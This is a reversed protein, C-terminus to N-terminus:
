VIASNQQQLAVLLPANGESNPENIDAGQDIFARVADVDGAKIAEILPTDAAFSLQGASVGM